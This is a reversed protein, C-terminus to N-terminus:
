ESSIVRDSHNQHYKTVHGLIANLVDWSNGVDGQVYTRKRFTSEKYKAPLEPRRLQTIACVVGLAASGM